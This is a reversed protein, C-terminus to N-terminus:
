SKWKEFYQLSYQVRSFDCCEKWIRLNETVGSSASHMFSLISPVVHHTNKKQGGNVCKSKKKSFKETGWVANVGLTVDLGSGTSLVRCRSAHKSDQLENQSVCVPSCSAWWFSCRSKRMVQSSIAHWLHLPHSNESGNAGNIPIVIIFATHTKSSGMLKHLPKLHPSGLQRANSLM